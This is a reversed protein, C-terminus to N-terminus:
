TPFDPVWLKINQIAEFPNILFIGEPLSAYSKLIFAMSITSKGINFMTIKGDTVNTNKKKGSPILMWIM